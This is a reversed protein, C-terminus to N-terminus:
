APEGRAFLPALALELVNHLTGDLAEAEDETLPIVRSFDVTATIGTETISVHFQAGNTQCPTAVAM